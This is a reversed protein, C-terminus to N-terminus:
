KIINFEVKIIPIFDCFACDCKGNITSLLDVLIEHFFMISAEIKFFINFRSSVFNHVSVFLM